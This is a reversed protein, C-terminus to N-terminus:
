AVEHLPLDRRWRRLASVVRPGPVIGRELRTVTIMSVGMVIALQHQSLGIAERHLRVAAALERARAKTQDEAVVQRTRRWPASSGARQLERLRDTTLTTLERMMSETPLFWETGIRVPKQYGGPGQLSDRLIEHQAYLAHVREEDFRDGRVTHLIVPREGTLPCRLSRVRVKPRYSCGVKVPAGPMAQAVYIMDEAHNM